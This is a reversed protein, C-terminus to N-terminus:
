EEIHQQHTGDIISEIRDVRKHLSKLSAEAKIYYERVEKIENRYGNMETKVETIATQINELKTLVTADKRAEEQTDKKVNRNRTSIGFFIAFAISVGSLLLSVEITM